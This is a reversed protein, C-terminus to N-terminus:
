RPRDFIGVGCVSFSLTQAYLDRMRVCNEKDVKTTKQRVGIRETKSGAECRGCERVEGENQAITLGSLINELNTIASM